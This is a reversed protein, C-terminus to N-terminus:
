YGELLEQEYMIERWRGSNRNVCDVASRIVPLGVTIPLYFEWDKGISENKVWGYKRYLDRIKCKNILLGFNQNINFDGRLRTLIDRSIGRGRYSEKLYIEDLFTWRYQNGRKIDFDVTVIKGAVKEGVVILQKFIYNPGVNLGLKEVLTYAEKM